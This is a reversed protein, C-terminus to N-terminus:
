DELHKSLFSTAIKIIKEDSEDVIDDTSFLLVLGVVDGNSIISSVVYTAEIENGDIIEISKKYKELLEERRNMFIELSKSIPKNIYSKKLPGSAAVVEDTNTIIINKKTFSYISDTFKQAFDEIKNIFSFKKLIIQDNSDTFIELNEGEKIRLTKRIEKPIVVRGLEDIRRVVGTAKM